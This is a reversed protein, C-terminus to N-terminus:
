ASVTVFYVDAAGVLGAPNIVGDFAIAPNALGYLNGAAGGSAAYSKIFYPAVAGEYQFSTGKVNSYTVSFWRKNIYNVNVTPNVGNGNNTAKLLTAQETTSPNGAPGVTITGNRSVYLANTGAPLNFRLKTQVLQGAGVARELMAALGTVIPISSGAANLTIRVTRVAPNLSSLVTTVQNLPINQFTQSGDFSYSLSVQGPLFQGQVNALISVIAGAIPVPNLDAIHITASTTGPALTIGNVGNLQTAIVGGQSFQFIAGPAAPSVATQGAVVYGTGMPLGNASFLSAAGPKLVPVGGLFATWQPTTGPTLVWYASQGAGNYDYGGVLVPKGGMNALKFQTVPSQDLTFYQFPETILNYQTWTLSPYDFIFTQGSTRAPPNSQFLVFQNQQYICGDSNGYPCTPITGQVNLQAFVQTNTNFSWFGVGGGNSNPNTAGQVILFIIGAQVLGGIVAMGGPGAVPTSVWTTTDIVYWGPQQGNSGMTFLLMHRSDGFPFLSAFDAAPPVAGTLVQPQLTDTVTDYTTWNGLLGSTSSRGGYIEIYRQGRAACAPQSANPNLVSNKQVFSGGGSSDVAIVNGLILAVADSYSDAGATGSLNVMRANVGAPFKDTTILVTGNSFAVALAPPLDIVPIAGDLNAVAGARGDPTLTEPRIIPDYGVVSRNGVLSWAQQDTMGSYIGAGQDILVQNAHHTHNFSQLLNVAALLGNIVADQAVQTRATFRVDAISGAAISTAAPPVPINYLAVS